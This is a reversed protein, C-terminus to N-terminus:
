RELRHRHRHRHHRHRWLSDIIRFEGAACKFTRKTSFIIKKEETLVVEVRNSTTRQWVTKCITIWSLYKNCYFIFLVFKHDSWKYLNELIPFWILMDCYNNIFTSTIFSFTIVTRYGISFNSKNIIKFYNLNSSLCMKM